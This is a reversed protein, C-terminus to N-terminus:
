SRANSLELVKDSRMEKAGWVIGSIDAATTTTRHTVSGPFDKIAYVSGSSVRQEGTSGVQVTLMARKASAPFLPAMSIFAGSAAYLLKSYTNLQCNSPRRLIRSITAEDIGTLRALEKQTKGSNKVANLLMNHATHQNRSAAYALDGRSIHDREAVDNNTTTPSTTM